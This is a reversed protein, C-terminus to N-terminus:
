GEARFPDCKHFGFFIPFENKQFLLKATIESKKKVKKNIIIILLTISLGLRKNNNLNIIM